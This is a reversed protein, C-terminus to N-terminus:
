YYRGMLPHDVIAKKLEFPTITGMKRYVITGGPEVLATYPLAGDWEPDVAEIMAYKDAGSFIYNTVAAHEKQLFKLARKESKLNDASISVFEFDRDEYMRHIEVFDPFEQVCPGCWTAWLNILRLKDSDNAFLAKIGNEDVPALTVEKAAWEKNIKKRYENKWAWKVSCGFTKTVADAVAVNKLTNDIANRLDEANATGPKESTDLRGTYTLERKKNFVFTHPTAIPGYKLSVGHTDGDYLYPFNYGKDNARVIMDEFSDGLDSYSLEKLLLANVANPSIAILQVGKDKYDTTLQIIRDEYAQATPCHNCTFVVVLVEATDYDNLSHFKGDVGPLRFDPAKEGIKLTSVEQAPVEQPDAVFFATEEETENATQETSPEQIKKEQKCSSLVSLAILGVLIFRKM